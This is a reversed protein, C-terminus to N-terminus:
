SIVDIRTPESIHILSQCKTAFIKYHGVMQGVLSEAQEDLLSTAAAAMGPLSMFNEEKEYSEILSEVERRLAVDGDCAEDLFAVRQNSDRELAADFVEKVRHWLEPTV